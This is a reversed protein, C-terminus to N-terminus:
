ASKSSNLASGRQFRKRMLMSTSGAQVSDVSPARKLTTTWTEAGYRAEFHMELFTSRSVWDGMDDFTLNARWCFPAPCGIRGVFPGDCRLRVTWHGAAETHVLIGKATLSARISPAKVGQVASGHAFRWLLGHQKWQLGRRVPRWQLQRQSRGSRGVAVRSWRKWTGGTPTTANPTFRSIRQPNWSSVILSGNAWDVGDCFGLGTGDILTTVEGTSVDVQLIDANNGSNVM